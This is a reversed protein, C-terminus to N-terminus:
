HNQQSLTGQSKSNKPQQDGVFDEPPGLDIAESEPLYQSVSDYYPSM